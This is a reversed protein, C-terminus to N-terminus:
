QVLTSTLAIKQVSQGDMYWFNISPSQRAQRVQPTADKVQLYWGQLQLTDSAKLGAASNIQAIQLASLTVGARIAGFNLAQNIPDACAAKILEYGQNNYPVSNINQLLEMLALQLQNNLWIQNIYSDLWEFMGSVIGPQFELFQQAATAYAGYFNYGNAILNSAVTASTVGAFLGDQGRFAFTIRGNTQQFDISAAAGCIFAAIQEPTTAGGPPQYIACTGDLNGQKIIAGFSSTANNSATPTIDTDWAIYAYRKNTGNVWEAFDQKQLSGSGGDPDFITMFTAWNQTLQTISTMFGGASTGAAGQSLVAGTASTLYLADSVTGTAFAVSSATGAVGSTIVFGGSVSDYSVALPTAAAAVTTSAATQTLNVFYTGTLGTGTGLATILTGATIGSGSLTQGVALTGSGVASVTLTGYTASITTSAVIQAISVAYEGIGGPTGSIQNAIKTGATIGTGSIAAGAVLTGSTVGTVYMVNGAISGTVSATAPAIAGTVSAAAPPSANLGTQILAAAASFSTASSLNVAGATRAYGDVNVTLTGSLAQLQALSLQNAPGGRLYAPVSTSPYQAFLITAPKQTSNNFGNFYNMAIETEEASAGFFNSVSVGDNPFALVQGIPVRPNQTLVLGNMVLANGGANLVNPIVNVLQSAPITSM